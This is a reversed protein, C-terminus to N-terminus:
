TRSWSPCGTLSTLTLPNTQRLQQAALQLMVQDRADPLGRTRLENARVLGSWVIDLAEADSLPLGSSGSRVFLDVVAPRRLLEKAHPEDVLRRLQPFATAIDDLEADEFGGVTLERVEGVVTELLARVAARGDTATIAWPTVGASLSARLLDGLIHDDREAVVDTGDLVLIRTPASMEVLLDELPVGLVHRLGVVTEPLRRLNLFVVDVAAPDAAAAASLEGLVLASKGVGSEGTVLVAPGPNLERLVAAAPGPRSLRLAGGNADLGLSSRVGNRADTDLRRLETWAVERRRRELHLADHADRRLMALDVDAAAPAYVAARSQLRDRLAVAAGVTPVRAWSELQNLLDAWDSEDAAELRPMLVDLHNLLRWTMTEVDSTSTETALNAAVLNVLHGLRDVIVRRFKKPTGVLDHFGQATAQSRALAALEAVQQAAPQPGAVCIALRSDPGATAPARLDTLLDGFLKETDQDSTTFAPSRRMAISLELHDTGDDRVAVVVVDDVQHAPAQQFSVREVRRGDLEPATAGTLLRALYTVAARREFSVGGGGTAYPSVGPTASGPLEATTGAEETM